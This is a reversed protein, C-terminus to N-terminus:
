CLEVTRVPDDSFAVRALKRFTRPPMGVRKSFLASFSTARAFGCMRAIQGISLESSALLRKAQEVREIAIFETTTTGTTQRFLRKFKTTGMQARDALEELRLPADINARIHDAVLVIAQRDGDDVAESFREEMILLRGMVENAIGAFLLEAARGHAETSGITELLHPIQPDWMSRGRMAGLCAALRSLSGSCGSGFAKEFYGDYYEIETYAVHTGAPMFVRGTRPRTELFTMIQAPPLIGATEHRIAFYNTFDFAFPVRKLLRFDCSAVVLDRDLSWAHYWGESVEGDGIFFVGCDRPNECSPALGVNALPATFLSEAWSGGPADSDSIRSRVRNMRM